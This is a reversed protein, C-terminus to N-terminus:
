AYSCLLVLNRVEVQIVINEGGLSSSLSPPSGLRRVFISARPKQNPKTYIIDMNENSDYDYAFVSQPGKSEILRDSHMGMAGNMSAHGIISHTEGDIIVRSSPFVEAADSKRLRNIFDNRGANNIGCMAKKWLDRKKTSEFEEGECDGIISESMETIHVDMPVRMENSTLKSRDSTNKITNEKTIIESQKPAGEFSQNLKLIDASIARSESADFSPRSKSSVDEEWSPLKQVDHERNEHMNTNTKYVEESLTNGVPNVRLRIETSIFNGRKPAQNSHYPYRNPYFANPDPLPQDLLSELKGSSINDRTRVSSRSTSKSGKAESRQSRSLDPARADLESQDANKGAMSSKGDDDDDDDDVTGTGDSSDSDSSSTESPEPGWPDLSDAIQFFLDMPGLPLEEEKEGISPTKSHKENKTLTTHKVNLSQVSYEKMGPSSEEPPKLNQNWKFRKKLVTKKKDNNNTESKTSSIVSVKSQSKVSVNSQSGKQSSNRSSESTSRKLLLVCSKSNKSNASRSVSRKPITAAPPAGSIVDWFGDDNDDRYDNHKDQKSSKSSRLNPKLSLSGTSLKTDTSKSSPVNVKKPQKRNSVDSDDRGDFWDVSWSKDQGIDSDHQLKKGSDFFNFYNSDLFENSGSKKDRKKKSSGLLHLRGREEEEYDELVFEWLPDVFSM